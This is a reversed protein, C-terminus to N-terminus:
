RRTDLNLPIAATVGLLVSLGTPSVDPLGAVRRRASFQQMVEAHLSVFNTIRGEVGGHVELGVRGSIDVLDGAEFRDYTLRLLDVGVGMGAYPRVPITKFAYANAGAFIPASVYQIAMADGPESGNARPKVSVRGASYGSRLYGIFRPYERTGGSAFLQLKFDFGKVVGCTQGEHPYVCARFRNTTLSDQGTVRGSTRIPALLPSVGLGLWWVPGAVRSATAPERERVPGYIVLPRDGLDEEATLAIKDEREKAVAKPHPAFM